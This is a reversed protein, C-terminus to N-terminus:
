EQEQEQADAESSSENQSQPPADADEAELPDKGEGSLHTTRQGAAGAPVVRMVRALAPYDPSSPAHFGLILLPMLSSPSLLLFPLPFLAFLPLFHISSFTSLVSRFPSSIRIFSQEDVGTKRPKPLLREALPRKVPKLGQRKEEEKLNAKPKMGPLPIEVVEEEEEEDLSDKTLSPASAGGRRCGSSGKEQEQEKKSKPQGGAADAVSPAPASPPTPMATAPLTTSTTPTAGGTATPVGKASASASSVAAVGGKKRGKKSHAKVIPPAYHVITQQTLFKSADKTSYLTIFTGETSDNGSTIPGDSAASAPLFGVPSLISMKPDLSLTDLM